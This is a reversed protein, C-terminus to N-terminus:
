NGVGIIDVTVFATTAEALAASAARLADNMSSTASQTVGSASDGLSLTGASVSTTTPVGVSIGGVNINDAGIVKQAALYLNGAVQIGADGADIVGSPASLYANANEGFSRSYRIRSTITDSNITANNGTLLPGRDTRTKRSNTAAQIGSGSLSPPYELTVAGTNPDTVAIPPPVSLATKAGKGADIDGHSSWLTIPGGDLSFIRSQNININRGTVANIEGYRQTVIGLDGAGKSLGAFKGALGVDIKGGPVVFNIDGDDITYIKSFALRVDGKWADGPFMAAIANNSRAYGDQTPDVVLGSTNEIGGQRVESYMVSLLMERRAMTPVADFAQRAIKQQQAAPLLAMAAAADANTSYGIGTVNKVATTLDGGFREFSVFDILDSAYNRHQTNSIHYAELSIAQQTLVPLKAFESLAADRSSYNKGTFVSVLGVLDGSFKGSTLWDIYSGSINATNNLYRDAFANYLVPDTLASVGNIGAMVTVNAGSDPLVTNTSNGLSQVGVSAGLDIDHGAMLYLRGPGNINIHLRAADGLSGNAKFALPYIIDRAAAIESIDSEKEHQIDIILNTIDRGSYVNVQKPVILNLDTIDGTNTEVIAVSNDNQHVPVSLLSRNNTLLSYPNNSDQSNNLVHAPNSSGPLASAPTDSMTILSGSLFQILNNASLTLQGSPSPFLTMSANLAISGSASVASVSGPYIGFIFDVPGSSVDAQAYRSSFTNYIKTSNNDFVINGADSKVNIAASPSYSFFYNEAVLPSGALSAQADSLPLLTTNTVGAVNIDHGANLSITADSLVLVAGLDASTAAGISGGATIQAVGKDVLVRPSTINGGATVLLNGGGVIQTLNDGGAMAKATVPVAANLNAINGGANVSLNGGGLAITGQLKPDHYSSYIDPQLGELSVGWTTANFLINDIQGTYISITGAERHLWDTFLSDTKAFNVSGKANIAVNGGFEPFQLYQYETQFLWFAWGSNFDGVDPLLESGTVGFISALVDSSEYTRLRTAGLSGIVSNPDAVNVNGGSVMLLDGRGTIVNAGNLVNLNGANASVAYPSASQLDAGAILHLDSSDIALLLTVPLQLFNPDGYITTFGDTLSAQINLDGGARLTFVPAEQNAGFRWDIKQDGDTDAALDIPSSVSISSSNKLEMEPRLHFNNNLAFGGVSTKIAAENSMFSVADSYMQNVVTDLSSSTYVKVADLDVREAGAVSLGHNTIAVGDNAINRPVRLLVKGDRGNQGGAVNISAGSDFVMAGTTTGL